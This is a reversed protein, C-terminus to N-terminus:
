GRPQRAALAPPRKDGAIPASAPALFRDLDAWTQALYEPIYVTDSLFWEVKLRVARADPAPTGM